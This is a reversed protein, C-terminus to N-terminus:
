IAGAPEKDLPAILQLGRSAANALRDCRENLRDGNHGKVWLWSIVHKLSEEHLAEWLDRNAVDKGTASRWDNRMWGHIWQKMGLQLYKSDTFLHVDSGDPLTRLAALAAMMEMRNNTTEAVHGWAETKVSDTVAIFAWGGAKGPGRCSGDTYLVVTPKQRKLWGKM